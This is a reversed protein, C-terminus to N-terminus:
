GRGKRPVGFSVLLRGFPPWFSSVKLGLGCILPKLSPSLLSSLPFTIKSAVVVIVVTEPTVLFSNAIIQSEVKSGILPILGM